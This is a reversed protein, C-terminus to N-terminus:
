KKQHSRVLMVRVRPEVFFGDHLSSEQWVGEVVCVHVCECVSVCLGERKKSAVQYSERERLSCVCVWAHKDVCVCVYLCASKDVCAIVEECECVSALVHKPTPTEYMEARACLHM